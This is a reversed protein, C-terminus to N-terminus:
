FDSIFADTPNIAKPSHPLIENMYEGLKQHNPCRQCKKAQLDMELIEAETKVHCEGQTQIFIGKTYIDGKRLVSTM